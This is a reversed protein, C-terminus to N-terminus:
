HAVGRGVRGGWVCVAGVVADQERLEPELVTKEQFLRKM